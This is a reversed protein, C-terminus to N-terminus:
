GIEALPVRRFMDADFTQAEPRYAYRYRIHYTQTAEDLGFDVAPLGDPADYYLHAADIPQPWMAELLRQAAMDPTEGDRLSSKLPLIRCTVPLLADEGAMPWVEVSYEVAYRPFSVAPVEGRMVQTIALLEACAAEFNDNVIVHDCTPAYFMESPLRDFRNDIDTQNDGRERMRIELAELSPPAIFVAQANEPYAARLITAGKFEIDAILDRKQYIADEVTARPVGYFKGPHVEQHELLEDNAIMQRFDDVSVFLHEIGHQESERPSRTTATPLQRLDPLNAMVYGMLANKGVGGPGVLIFLMGLREQVTM